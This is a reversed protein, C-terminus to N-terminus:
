CCTAAAARPTRRRWCNCPRTPSARRPASWASASSVEAGGQQGAHHGGFSRTQSDHGDYATVSAGPYVWRQEHYQEAGASNLYLQEQRSVELFVSWNVLREDRPM